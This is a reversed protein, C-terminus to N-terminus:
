QNCTKEICKWSTGNYLQFCNASPDLNYILMGQVPTIANRQVTTMRSIVFGKNKSELVLLANPISEPWNAQKQTQITIGLPYPNTTTNYSDATNINPNQVCITSTKTVNIDDLYVNDTNGRYGYHVFRVKVTQNLYAALDITDKRWAACNTPIYTSSPATSPSAMTWLPKATTPETGGCSRDNKHYVTNWTIGCDTSVQVKLSKWFDCWYTRRNAVNFTLLAQSTYTLDLSKELEITTTKDADTGQMYTGFSNIQMIKSGRAACSNNTLVSVPILGTMSFYSPLLTQTEFNENNFKETSFSGCYVNDEQFTDSVINNIATWAIEITHVGESASQPNLTIISSSNSAINGTYNYTQVLNGDIKCTLIATTIPNTGYNKLTVEPNFTTLCGTKIQKIGAEVVNNVPILAESVLLKGRYQGLAAARIRDKQGSTFRDSAINCNGPAAYFYAMYNYLSNNWVGNGIPCSSVLCDDQKHPPTDCVNDGQTLCDANLPCNANKNDGEFTHALNFVHGLEHVALTYYNGSFVTGNYPDDSPYSGFGGIGSEFKNVIWINLYQDTPWKSLDRMTNGITDDNPYGVVAYDSYATTGNVRNIGTTANSNPTRKALFFEIQTDVSVASNNQNRYKDNLNNILTNVWADSRNYGVGLAEGTHIIHVVVPIKLVRTSANCLGWSNDLTRDLVSSRQAAKSKKPSFQNLYNQYEVENAARQSQAKPNNLLEQKQYKDTGCVQGFSHYKPLLIFILAFLLLSSIKMKQLLLILYRTFLLNTNKEFGKATISELRRVTL